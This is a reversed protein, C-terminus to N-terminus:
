YFGNALFNREETTIIGVPVRYNCYLLYTFM